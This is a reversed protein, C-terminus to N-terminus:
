SAPEASHAFGQEVAWAAVQARNNFGLKGLVRQVYNEATGETIVLEHAIQRNTLGRALLAAVDRERSTLSWGPSRHAVGTDSPRAGAAPRATARQRVDPKEALAYAIAEDRPMARGEAWVAAFTAESTQARALSLAWDQDTRDAPELLYGIEDRLVEAAGFLRAAREPQRAVAAVAALGGIGIAVVHNSGQERALILSEAILAAARSTDGLRLALHGLNQLPTVKVYRNGMVTLVSLAENYLEAAQEYASESRLLEGLAILTSTLGRPNDQCRTRWLALSEELRERAQAPDIAILAYGLFTLSLALGCDDAAARYLGVSEEFRTCALRYDGQFLPLQGATILAKARVRDGDAASPPTALALARETWGRGESIHSRVWLFERLAGVLRLATDAEQAEVAWRLAARLNDFDRGLRDFWTNQDTGHLQPEASEALALFFIAHSRHVTEAESSTELRQEAYYRLPELLRYRREALERKDVQVLSKDVLRTLLMLIDQSEIKDAAGVAEAAQLDFGGAFVALRRFLAQEAPSLLAHSWDLTAELTQQRGPATRAGGILLRFSDGLRQVIQEPTLVRVQAAALEIALPLGDLRRCVEAVSEGGQPTLAFDPRVAHARELFLRVAPSAVLELPSRARGAEPVALPPVPWVAEGVVRLSERSTALIRLTPCRTTLAEALRACADVLHECNDLLLLLQRARLWAVLAQEPSHSAGTQVGLATAVAQPVLQPDALPALEVLWAGDAFEAAPASDRAVELALSTKGAGGAGTLTVLRGESGLVLDRVAAVDRERGILASRREPLNTSHEAMMVKAGAAGYSTAPPVDLAHDDLAAV